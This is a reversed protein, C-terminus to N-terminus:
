FDVSLKDSVKRGDNQYYCHKRGKSVYFEGATLSTITFEGNLENKMMAIVDPVTLAPDTIVLRRKGDGKPEVLWVAMRSPVIPKCDKYKM